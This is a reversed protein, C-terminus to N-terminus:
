GISAAATLMLVRSRCKAAILRACLEDGHMGPLDRDLVIVDYDNVTARAFGSAGDFVVDVAMCAHRLGRAIAQALQEDDEIVLVRVSVPKYSGSTVARNRRAPAGATPM